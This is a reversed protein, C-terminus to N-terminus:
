LNTIIVEVYETENRNGSLTQKRSVRTINFNQYLQWVLPNDNYSLIFRGKINHLIEALKLHDDKNFDVDYYRETGVYPPDLYFLANKRDYVQILNAYGKQEIVVSKLREQVKELFAISNEITKSATAFTHRDSGFSLKVTYFFRAARQIDTFGQAKLQSMSDFFQERSTLMWKLEEQVAARHYKICRYLNILNGDLDNFVELEGSQKEKAFLVWGAGGFVEIYREMGEPFYSLITKRLQRKGGIWAIFSNM